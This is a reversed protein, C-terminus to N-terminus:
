ETENITMAMTDALRDSDTAEITGQMYRNWWAEAQRQDWAIDLPVAQLQRGLEAASAPRDAPNKELCQMILQCLEDPADRRLEGIPRPSESVHKALLKMVSPADFVHQGALLWYAVCGLGYIDSAATAPLSEVVEPSLSTPTGKIHGPSTKELDGDNEVRVIGFDLLKLFDFHTGLHCTLLNAPKVDRHILGANHAEELSMCAMTLFHIARAPSVPGFKKVLTDLDIGSLFEMVYYFGGEDTAGFDYLEVTHPSRLQATAKAERQFRQELVERAAADSKLAEERILKVASPRALLDHQALWVEGMSGSGLQRELRYGGVHRGERLLEPPIEVQGQSPLVIAREIVSQLERLNGPWSYSLLMQESKGSLGELTKGLSRAREAVITRALTIVDDRRETLSPVKLPRTNLLYALEGIFEGRTVLEAIEESASAIVRVDPVPKRGASREDAAKRLLELLANQAAASLTEVRELYLTGGDALTMKAPTPLSHDAVAFVADDDKIHPCAVYIFPRSARPSGRHIARAVAEQGAGPPGSLWVADDQDAVIEIGERLARVAVSEGQLWVHHDRDAADALERAVALEHTLRENAIRLQREKELMRLDREIIGRFEDLLDRYTTAFQRTHDDLVCITGFVSGDPCILPVGLYSIMNLEVDPNKEWDPDELANPVLLRNRTAMVTECYLGTNLDAKEGHEYPNNQSRSALLVEIQTPLVRMILGAPVDYVQAMLDVTQQWKTVIEEPVDHRFYSPKETASM